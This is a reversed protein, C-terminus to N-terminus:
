EAPIESASWAVLAAALEQSAGDIAAVIAKLDRSTAKRSASFAKAAVVSRADADILKARVRIEATPPQGEGDRYVAEFAAVDLRLEYSAHVGDEPRVAARVAGSADFTEIILRQLMDPTAAAWRAGAIYAIGGGEESVAIREGALAKPVNPTPAEIVVDAAVADSADMSPASLRFVDPPPGSNPLVSVCGALLASALAVVITARTM